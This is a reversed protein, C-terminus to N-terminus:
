LPIETLKTTIPINISFNRLFHYTTATAGPIQQIIYQCDHKSNYSWDGTGTNKFWDIFCYTNMWTIFMHVFKAFNDLNNLM